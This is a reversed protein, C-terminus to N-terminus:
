SSGQTCANYVTKVWEFKYALLYLDDFLNLKFTYVLLLIVIFSIWEGGGGGGGVCVCM